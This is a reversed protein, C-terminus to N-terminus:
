QQRTAQGIGRECSFQPNRGARDLHMHFADQLLKLHFIAGLGRDVCDLGSQRWSPMPPAGCRNASWRCSGPPAAGSRSGSAAPNIAIQLTSRRFIAASLQLVALTAGTAIIRATELSERM